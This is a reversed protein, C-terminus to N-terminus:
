AREGTTPDAAHKRGTLMSRVLNEGHLLSGLFVGAIHVAVLLLTLNALLEHAEELVEGGAGIFWGALPGGGEAGYVAIGSLGTLLLALLLAIIMAGGAPNHGIYRPAQGNLLQKLYDYTESLPRVFQSFRAYKTGAFGWFLRLTLLGLVLYGAYVHLTQLEDESLYTVVFGVVLTWHFLRILPDWVRIEKPNQLAKLM